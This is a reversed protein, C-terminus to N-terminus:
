GAGSYQHSGLAYIHQESLLAGEASAKYYAIVALSAVSAPFQRSVALRDALKHDRDTQCLPSASAAVSSRRSRRGESLSGLRPGITQEASSCPRIRALNTFRTDRRIEGAAGAPDDPKLWEDRARVASKLSSMRACAM